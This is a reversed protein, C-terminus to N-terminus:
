NYFSGAIFCPKWNLQTATIVAGQQSQYNFSVVVLVLKGAGTKMELNISEPQIFDDKYPINVIKTTIGQVSPNTIDITVTSIVLAITETNLPAKMESFPNFAPLHFFLGGDDVSKISFPVRLFITEDLKENFSLGTFSEINSVPQSSNIPGTKLWQAFAKDLRHMIRRNAPEPLVPRLLSRVIASRNAAMGFVRSNEIAVPVRKVKAPRRRICDVDKWQYFIINGATGRLKLNSQIGM